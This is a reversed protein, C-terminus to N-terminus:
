SASPRARTSARDGCGGVTECRGRGSRRDGCGVCSVGGEDGGPVDLMGGEDVVAVWRAWVFLSWLGTFEGVEDEVGGRFGCLQGLDAVKNLSSDGTIVALLTERLNM